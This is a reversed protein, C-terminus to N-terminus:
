FVKEVRCASLKFPAIKSHPDLEDRTLNNVLSESFHWPMFLEGELVEDSIRLTTQLEGRASILKVKIGDQLNNKYADSSNMLVYSENAFANLSDNKRSM